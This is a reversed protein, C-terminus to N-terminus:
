GHGNIRRLEYNLSQAFARAEIMASRLDREDATRDAIARNLIGICDANIQEAISKAPQAVFTQVTEVPRLHVPMKM